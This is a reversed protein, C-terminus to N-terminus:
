LDSTFAVKRIFLFLTDIRITTRKLLNSDEYYIYVYLSILPSGGTFSPRFSLKDKKFDGVSFFGAWKSRIFILGQSQLKPIVYKNVARKIILYVILINLVIVTTFGVPVLDQLDKINYLLAFSYIM